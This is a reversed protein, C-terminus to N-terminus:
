YFSISRQTSMKDPLIGLYHLKKMIVKSVIALQSLDNTSDKKKGAM